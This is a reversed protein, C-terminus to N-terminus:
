RCSAWSRQTSDCSRTLHRNSKNCYAQIKAQKRQQREFPSNAPAQRKRHSAEPLFAQRNANTDSQDEQDQSKYRQGDEKGNGALRCDARGGMERPAAPDGGVPSCPQLNLNRCHRYFIDSAEESFFHLKPSFCTQASRKCEDSFTKM